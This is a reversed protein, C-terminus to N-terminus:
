RSASFKCSVPLSPFEHDSVSPEKASGTGGPIVEFTRM